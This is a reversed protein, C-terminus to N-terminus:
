MEEAKPTNPSAPTSSCWGRESAALIIAGREKGESSTRSTTSPSNDSLKWTRDQEPPRLRGVLQERQTSTQEDTPGISGGAASM